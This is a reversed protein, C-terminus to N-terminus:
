SEIHRLQMDMKAGGMEAIISSKKILLPNDSKSLWLTQKKDPGDISQLQCRYCDYLDITDEGVVSFNYTQISQGQTNYLRIVKQYSSTLPLASLYCDLAPGDMVFTNEPKIEFGKANDNMIVQGNITQNNVSYNISMPEQSFERSIPTFDSLQVNCIDTMDGGPSVSNDTITLTDDAVLVTRTVEFGMKKGQMDLSLDYVYKGTSLKKEPIPLSASKESASISTPMELSRIDVTVNDIIKALNDPVSEQYRGGIHEALFKEMV